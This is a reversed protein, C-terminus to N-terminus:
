NLTSLACLPHHHLKSYILAVRGVEAAQSRHSHHLSAVVNHHLSPLFAVVEKNLIMLFSVQSMGGTTKRELETSMSLAVVLARLSLSSTIQDNYLGCCRVGVLATILWLEGPSEPFNNAIIVGPDRPSVKTTM